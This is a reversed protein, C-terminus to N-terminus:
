IVDTKMILEKTYAKGKIARDALLLATLSLLLPTIFCCM